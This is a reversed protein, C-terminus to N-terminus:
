VNKSQNMINKSSLTSEPNENYYYTIMLGCVKPLIDKRCSKKLCFTKRCSTKRCPPRVRCTLISCECNKSKQQNAIPRGKYTDLQKVFTEDLRLSYIEFICLIM